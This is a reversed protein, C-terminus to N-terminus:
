STVEAPETQPVDLHGEPLRCRAGWPGACDGVMRSPTCTTGHTECATDQAVTAEATAEIWPLTLTHGVADLNGITRAAAALTDADDAVITAVVAYAGICAVARDVADLNTVAALVDRHAGPAPVAAQILVTAYPM